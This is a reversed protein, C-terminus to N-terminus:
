PLITVHGSYAAMARDRTLLPVQETQAQAILMRDFPDGHYRPLKAAARCHDPVIALLDFGDPVDLLQATGNPIRGRELLIAIEWLSVVSLYLTSAGDIVNRETPTLQQPGMRLWLVFHTDLLVTM